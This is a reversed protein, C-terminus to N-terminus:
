DGLGPVLGADESADVTEVTEDVQVVVLVLALVALVAGGVFPQRLRVDRRRPLGVRAPRRRRRPRVGDRTRPPHHRVRGGKALDGALTLSPADTDLIGM